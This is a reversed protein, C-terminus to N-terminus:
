PTHKKGFEMPRGSERTLEITNFRENVSGSTPIPTRAMQAFKDLSKNIDKQLDQLKQQQEPTTQPDQSTFMQDLKASDAELSQKEKAEFDAAPEGDVTVAHFTMEREAVEYTGLIQHGQNVMSDAKRPDKRFTETDLTFKHDATLTLLGKPGAQVAMNAFINDSKSQENWQGELKSEASRCGTALMVALIAILLSNSAFRLHM